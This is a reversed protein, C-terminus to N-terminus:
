LEKNILKVLSKLNCGKVHYYCVAPSEEFGLEPMEVPVIEHPHIWSTGQPKCGYEEIRKKMEREM